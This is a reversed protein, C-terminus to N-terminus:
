ALDRRREYAGQPARQIPDDAFSGATEEFFGPPWGRLRGEEVGGSVEDLPIVIIEVKRRLLNAPVDISVTGERVEKIERIVNM